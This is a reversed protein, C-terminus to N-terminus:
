RKLRPACTAVLWRALNPFRRSMGYSRPYVLRPKRKEAAQRVLRALEEATGWPLLAAAKSPEYGEIGRDGMPTHVPGPYITLVHVGTGKLEARLSESAAALAAKSANYYYMGPTPTLAAMSAVDVITGRGRQLMGPLVRLTLRLPTHVNLRLLAEGEEPRTADTPAVIQMGANNVLVDIPGLAQEAEDVWECAAETRTLDSGVCLTRGGVEAALRELLEKRRAVLTVAAGARAYERVLAEGIGSSAGTVVVHM